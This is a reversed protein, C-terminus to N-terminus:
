RAAKLLDPLPPPLAKQWNDHTRNVELLVCLAAYADNAAYVLQADSLRHLSWNSTTIRKSKHLRQNFAIAVGARLGTSSKYGLLKFVTNVDLVAKIQLGFRRNVHSIDSQLGFGAKLLRDSALLQAVAVECEPRHLQFIYAKQMTSFQVIHPGDDLAGQTFIPKSETDFGVIGAQLLDDVARQCAAEGAPVVICTLPLISFPVLGATEEKTPANRRPRRAQQPTRTAAADSRENETCKTKEAAMM